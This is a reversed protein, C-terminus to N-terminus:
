AGKQKAFDAFKVVNEQNPHASVLYHPDIVAGQMKEAKKACDRARDALLLITRRDVEDIHNLQMIALSLNYLDQSLM